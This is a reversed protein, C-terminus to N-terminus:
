KRLLFKLSKKLKMEFKKKMFVILPFLYNKLAPKFLHRNEIIGEWNIHYNEFDQGLIVRASQIKKEILRPQMNLFHNTMLPPQIDRHTDIFLMKNGFMFFLDGGFVTELEKRVWDVNVIHMGEIPYDANFHLHTFTHPFSLVSLHNKSFESILTLGCSVAPFKKRHWDSKSGWAKKWSFLMDWQLAQSSGLILLLLDQEVFNQLYKSQIDSIFNEQYADDDDLLSTLLYKFEGNSIKTLWDTKWIELKSNYTVVLLNIREGLIKLRSRYSNPLAPDIIIVWVFNKCSQNVLSPFAINELLVIRQKLHGPDLPDLPSRKNIVGINKAFDDNGRFCFRTIVFHKIQDPEVIENEM